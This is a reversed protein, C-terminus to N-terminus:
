VDDCGPRLGVQELYESLATMDASSVIAGIYAGDENIDGQVGVAHVHLGTRPSPTINREVEYGICQVSGAFPKAPLNELGPRNFLHVIQYAQHAFEGIGQLVDGLLASRSATRNALNLWRSIDSEGLGLMGFRVSSCCTM